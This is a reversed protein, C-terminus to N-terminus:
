RRDTREFVRADIFLDLLAGDLAGARHEARLTDLADEVRLAKKYPRDAATLADYIDAITMMRAQVPIQEAAAGFPYGSGDLKEHHSRAIEPIRRLERTWPIQALFQFTHVVHQQIERREADTLSGRTIALVSAEDPTLVTRRGGRHDEWSRATIRLLRAAFDHAHITPENVTLIVDLADNLEAVAAALEGDLRAARDAYEPQRRVAWDLKRLTVGLELDRMLLEVRQRIRELDAPYLKKAKVLVHERVGVKGFDHLLAAYRLERLEAATFGVDRYTGRGCRDVAEALGVTLDAVRFSHGSTTPDRSEIATVSAKVFGEFLDSISDYLRRNALAVAAQSALSGALRVHREGFPGVHREVDEASALRGEFEPKCNILQVAGLTDGQPTRMPVVLMSRTRYGAHEDFWRNIRFPSGPPPAYADAINVVAGTLAVHGAVSNGDLPLTVAEFAIAVSENRARAFRLRAGGDPAEEVLYLSGADSRTIQCARVLITELLVDLNREASLQIGIANLEGLERELRAREAAADLDAFANAVARAVLPRGAGAPVLGYWAAPWPGPAVAEVVGVLRSSGAPPPTHPDSTLVVVSEAAQTAALPQVDFEDALLAAAAAAAPSGRDYRVRRPM